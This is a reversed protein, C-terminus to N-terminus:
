NAKGTNLWNQTFYGDSIPKDWSYKGVWVRTKRETLENTLLSSRRLPYEIGTAGKVIEIKEIIYTKILKNTKNYYEMKVPLYTVKDIYSIRHAYELKTTKADKTNKPTSDIKWCNYTTTGYTGGNTNGNVTITENANLMVHNDLNVDRIAMDNYTFECGVFSKSRDGAPIRRTNKLSPLYVFRDDDKASKEAQLVRTGKNAPSVIFNFVTSILGNKNNGYQQMVQREVTGNKEINDLHMESESFKPTPLNLAKNMVDFAEDSFAFSSLALFFASSAIFKMIKM